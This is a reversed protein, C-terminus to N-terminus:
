LTLTPYQADLFLMYSSLIAIGSYYPHEVMNEHVIHLPERHCNRALQTSFGCNCSKNIICFMIDIPSLCLPGTNM